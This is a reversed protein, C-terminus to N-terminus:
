QDKLLFYVGWSKNTSYSARGRPHQVFLGHKIVLYHVQETSRAMGHSQAAACRPGASLVDVGNFSQPYTRHEGSGSPKRVRRSEIGFTTLHGIM